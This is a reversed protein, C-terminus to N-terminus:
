KITKKDIREIDLDIPLFRSSHEIEGNDWKKIAEQCEKDTEYGYCYYNDRGRLQNKWDIVSYIYAKRANFPKTCIAFKDSIARVTYRQKESSFKIKDGVRIM